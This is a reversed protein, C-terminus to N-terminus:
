MKIISDSMKKFDKKSKRIGSFEKNLEHLRKWMEKERIKNEEQNKKKKLCNIKSPWRAGKKNENKM